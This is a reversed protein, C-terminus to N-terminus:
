LEYETQILIPRGETLAVVVKERGRQLLRWVTGRSAKMSEGAEQQSLGKQDVLRM